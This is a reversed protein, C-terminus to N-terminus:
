GLFGVKDKDERKICAVLMQLMFDEEEDTLLWMDNDATSHDLLLYDVLAHWDQLLDIQSWLAEAAASARTVAPAASATTVMATQSSSSPEESPEDLAHSTEVLLSALAKWQFRREMEKSSVKGARKKKADRLGNWEGELKEIREEWLGRVFSAAAKRIRPEQDFVLRAVKDRQEEDDDQLAGSKDIQTIVNVAHSRVPTEIDLAAMQMLRPAIRLMFTSVNNAATLKSFLGALAKVTELRAHGDPDNSGRIFYNLYTASVYMEPFKKVWVGLEHLCDARIIPDADRVRNVFVSPTLYTCLPNPWSM